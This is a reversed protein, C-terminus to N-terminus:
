QAPWYVWGIAALFLWMAAQGAWRWRLGKLTAYLCAGSIGALGLFWGCSRLLPPLEEALRPEEGSLVYFVVATATLGFSIAAASGFVLATLVALPRM